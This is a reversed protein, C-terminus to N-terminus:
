LWGKRRAFWFPLVASVLILGLAYPYGLLWELEPMHEFNMGYIGAILTAPMFVVAFISFIKMVFNQELTILGLNADLLFVLNDGLFNSHDSLANVDAILSAVHRLNPEDRQMAETSELFTLLRTASVSSERLQALLQQARGIRILLTELRREPQRRRHGGAQAPHSFVHRSITEIENVAVEFEDALRDIITDLLRVFLSRADCDLDQEAYVHEAFLVFPLPDIYRVTILLKDTLIFGIPDNGPEGAHVGHLVSMTMFTAVRTQYLRSSPEIEALEERTPIDAGLLKEALAEEAETPDLLDVWVAGEPLSTITAPDVPEAPCGPGFLRLM